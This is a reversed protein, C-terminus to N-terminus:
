VRRMSKVPESEYGRACFDALLMRDASTFRTDATLTAINQDIDSPISVGVNVWRM